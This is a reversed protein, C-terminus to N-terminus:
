AAKLKQIPTIGGIGMNPRGNNYTWLRRTAHDQVEEISDFHYQISGTPDQDHRHDAGTKLAARLDLKSEM